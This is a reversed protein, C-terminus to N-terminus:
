FKRKFNSIRENLIIPLSLVRDFKEIILHMEFFYIKNDLGYFTVFFVIDKCFISGAKGELVFEASKIHLEEWWFCCYIATETYFTKKVRNHEGIEFILILLENRHVVDNWKPKSKM